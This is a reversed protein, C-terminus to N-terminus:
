KLTIPVNPMVETLKRYLEAKAPDKLAKDLDRQRQEVEEEM